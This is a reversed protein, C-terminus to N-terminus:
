VREVKNPDPIGKTPNAGINQAKKLRSVMSKQQQLQAKLLSNARTLQNVQNNSQNIAFFAKQLHAQLFDVRQGLITVLAANDQAQRAQRNFQDLSMQLSDFNPGNRRNFRDDEARRNMDGLSRAISRVDDEFPSFGQGLASSSTFALTLTTLVSLTPHSIMDICEQLFFPVSVVRRTRQRPAYSGSVLRSRM